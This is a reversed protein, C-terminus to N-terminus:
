KEVTQEKDNRWTSQKSLMQPKMEAAGLKWNRYQEGSCNNLLGMEEHFSENRTKKCYSSFVTPRSIFRSELPLREL